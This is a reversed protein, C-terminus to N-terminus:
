QAFAWMYGGSTRRQNHCCQSIHSHSIGTEIEAQCASDFTKIFDGNTSYMSIKKSNAKGIKSKHEDTFKRGRLGESRRKLTEPSLNERRRAASLKARTEMSPYYGRTGDGGLTMNYGYKNDMTSWLSILYQETNKAEEESLGDYLIIHDFMDWGYKQIAAYFHTNEKYGRGSNWRHEVKPKSTVGVYRKNNLKNIHVYVKWNDDTKSM